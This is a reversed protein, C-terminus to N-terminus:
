PRESATEVPESRPDADPSRSDRSNVDSITQTVAPLSITMTLGGGPTGEPSLTGSMAEILGRSLALGLGVGSTNDRDGLRQFPQFIQDWDGEPIGPGCDIVRIEVAKGLASATIQPPTNAPSHRIANQVLNAIARELLAPDSSVEPTDEPVRIIVDYAAPGLSSVAASIVDAVDMPQIALALAGAQLRSMDLLNEVLGSLRDLSEEITALLEARDDETLPLDSM